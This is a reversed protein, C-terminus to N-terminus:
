RSHGVCNTSYGIHENEMGLGQYKFDICGYSSFTNIVIGKVRRPANFVVSFAACAFASLISQLLIIVM